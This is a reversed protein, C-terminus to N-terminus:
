NEILEFAIKDSHYICANQNHFKVVTTKGRLFHGFRCVFCVMELCLRGPLDSAGKSVDDVYEQVNTNHYFATNVTQTTSWRTANDVEAKFLSTTSSVQLTTTLKHAPTYENEKFCTINFLVNTSTGSIVFFKCLVDM